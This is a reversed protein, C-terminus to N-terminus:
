LKRALTLGDAIPLMCHAVRTDAAIKANLARLATTDADRKEPDAVDGGWLVNDVLMLGGKRLLTLGGEYYADYSSKDADLFIMDFQGAEGKALLDAIAAHGGDLRLTIRNEVGAKKWFARAIKTWEDSVDVATIQAGCVLAVALSSYGTFTGIELIRRAGMLQAILGMFAGQEPAIQMIADDGFAATAARLEALIAPERCAHARYYDLIAGDLIVSATSM